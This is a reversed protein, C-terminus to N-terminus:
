NVRVEDIVGDLMRGEDNMNLIEVKSVNYIM